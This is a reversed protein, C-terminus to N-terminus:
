LIITVTIYLYLCCVASTRTSKDLGAINFQTACHLLFEVNLNRTTYSPLDGHLVLIRVAYTLSTM